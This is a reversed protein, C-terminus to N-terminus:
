FNWFDMLGLVLYIITLFCYRKKEAYSFHPLFSQGFHSFVEKEMLGVREHTPKGSTAPLTSLDSQDHIYGNDELEKTTLTYYSVPFPINKMLEYFAFDDDCIPWTGQESIPRSKKTFTNAQRKRNVKCTLLADITQMGDSVRNHFSLFMIAM